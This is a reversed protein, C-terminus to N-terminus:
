HCTGDDQFQGSSVMSTLSRVCSLTQQELADDKLADPSINQMSDHAAIIENSFSQMNSLEKSFLQYARRDSDTSVAVSVLRLDKAAQNRYSNDSDDTVPYGNRVANVLATRWERIVAIDEIGAKLFDKSLASNAPESAPPTATAPSAASAPLTLTIQDGKFSLAGGTLRALAEVDIYSRGKLQVVPAEGPQGNVILTRNEQVAQPLALCPIAFFSILMLGERLLNERM